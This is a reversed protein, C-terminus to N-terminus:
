DESFYRIIAQHQQTTLQYSKDTLIRGYMLYKKQKLHEYSWFIHMLEHPLTAKQFAEGGIALIVMPLKVFEKAIMPNFERGFQDRFAKEDRMDVNEAALIDLIRPEQEGSRYTIAATETSAAYQRVIYIDVLKVETLHPGYALYEHMLLARTSKGEVFKGKVLIENSAEEDLFRPANSNSHIIFRDKSKLRELGKNLIEATNYTLKDLLEKLSIEISTSTGETEGIDGIINYRLFLNFIHANERNQSTSIAKSDPDACEQLLVGVVVLLIFEFFHKKPNYM